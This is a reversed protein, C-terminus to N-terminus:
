YFKTRRTSHLDISTKTSASPAPVRREPVDIIKTPTVRLNSAVNDVYYVRELGYELTKALV